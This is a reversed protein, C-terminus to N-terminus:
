AGSPLAGEAIRDPLERLSALRRVDLARLGAARAGELDREADDGVYVTDGAALGLAALAQAFIRPDPKAAGAHAPLVIARLRGALGLGALNDPLRQDFNSVVGLVLGRRALEDLAAEAGERARWAGPQAYHDWLADFCADFAEPADAEHFHATQDAARFTARVVDRWAAREQRAAEALSAGPFVRAPAARLVRAFADELRWAPLRVGHRAAVRAYTEGVPERLDVLTGTADFLVGRLGAV